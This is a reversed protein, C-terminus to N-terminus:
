SNEFSQPDTLLDSKADPNSSMVKVFFYFTFATVIINTCLLMISASTNM